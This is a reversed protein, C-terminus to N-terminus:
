EISYCEGGSENGKKLCVCGKGCASSSFCTYSPCFAAFCPKTLAIYGGGLMLAILILGLIINRM